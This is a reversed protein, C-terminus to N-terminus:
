DYMMDFLNLEPAPFAYQATPKLEGSDKLQQLVELLKHNFKDRDSQNDIVCGCSWICSMIFSSLIDAREKDNMQSSKKKKIENTIDKGELKAASIRAEEREKELELDQM